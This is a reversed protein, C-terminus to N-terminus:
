SERTTVLDGLELLAWLIVPLVLLGLLWGVATAVGLAVLWLRSRRGM